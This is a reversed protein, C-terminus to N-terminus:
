MNLINTFNNNGRLGLDVDGRDNIADDTLYEYSNVISWNDEMIRILSAYNKIFMNFSESRRYLEQIAKIIIYSREIEPNALRLDAYWLTWSGCFGDWYAIKEEGEGGLGIHPCFDIPGHYKQIFTVGMYKNFLDKVQRDIDVDRGYGRGKMKYGNPEFREMIKKKSDYILCNGVGTERHQFVFPIVILRKTPICVKLTEWFDEPVVFGGEDEVWQISVHGWDSPMGIFQRSIGICDNKYKQTLYTMGVFQLWPSGKLTNDIQTSQPSIADTKSYEVRGKEKEPKTQIDDLVEDQSNLESDPINGM